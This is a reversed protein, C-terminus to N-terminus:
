SLTGQSKRRFVTSNKRIEMELANMLILNVLIREAQGRSTRATKLFKSFTIEGKADLYEFLAKEEKNFSIYAGEGRNRNKWVEKLVRNAKINEDAVRVYAIWNGKEDPAHHPGSNSQPVSVELVCKGELYWKRINYHVSPRCYIHAASEAMYEEEDSQIGTIKGNDKVGILLIGGTTNAFASFTRAIKKADSIEFKFDLNEGEGSNILGKVYNLKIPSAPKM